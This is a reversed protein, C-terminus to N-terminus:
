RADPGELDVGRSPISQWTPHRRLEDLFEFGDMEPMMLDLLILGPKRESVRELGIKGNEAESVAWGQRELSRRLVERTPADDEVVLVVDADSTPRYKRLVSTLRDRDVPKTLYESAGLLYGMEQNSAITLMVVPIDSTGPDAKLRTLVAWGDMKPM